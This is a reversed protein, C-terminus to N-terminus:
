KINWIADAYELQLSEVDNVNVDFYIKAVVSRGPSLTVNNNYDGNYVYASNTSYGDAYCHIEADNFYISESGTNVVKYEIYTCIDDYTDVTGYDTFTLEFEGSNDQTLPITDMLGFQYNNYEEETSPAIFISIIILIIAVIISVIPNIGIKENLFERVKRILLIGGAIFLIGSIVGGMIIACIGAIFAGIPLLKSRINHYNKSGENLAEKIENLANKPNEADNANEENNKTKENDM